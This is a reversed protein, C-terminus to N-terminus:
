ERGLWSATQDGLRGHKNNSERGINPCLYGQKTCRSGVKGLCYGWTGEQSSRKLRGMEVVLEVCCSLYVTKYDGL